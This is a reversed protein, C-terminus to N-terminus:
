IDQYLPFSLFSTRAKANPTLYKKLQLKGKMVRETIIKRNTGVCVCLDNM